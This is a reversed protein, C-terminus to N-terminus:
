SNKNSAGKNEIICKITDAIKQSNEQRTFYTQVGDQPLIFYSFTSHNVMYDTSTDDPIESYVKYINKVSDIQEKSGTFGIMNPHHFSTFDKLRAPSDRAPDVSIFIPKIKINEQDLLEVAESNRMLDFPCIDPCYTYGFYLLSPSDLISHSSVKLGEEDILYFDGQFSKFTGANSNLNCEALENIISERKSVLFITLSACLLLSLSVAVFKSSNHRGTM